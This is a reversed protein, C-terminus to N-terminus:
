LCENNNRYKNILNRHVYHKDNGNNNRNNEANVTTM